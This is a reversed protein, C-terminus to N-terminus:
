AWAVARAATALASTRDLHDAVPEYRGRVAWRTLTEAGELAEPVGMDELLELLHAIDHTRPVVRGGAALAAKLAKEVAQQVHFGVVEDSQDADAALLNAVGLDAQSKALLLRFEAVDTHHAAM